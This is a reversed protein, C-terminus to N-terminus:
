QPDLPVTFFKWIRSYYVKFQQVHETQMYYLLAGNEKARRQVAGSSSGLSHLVIYVGHVHSFM